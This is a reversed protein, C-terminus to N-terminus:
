LIYKKLLYIIAGAVLVIAGGVVMFYAAAVALLLFVVACAALGAGFLIKKWLPIKKLSFSRIHITYGEDDEKKEEKGEENLTLGQYDHVDDKSMVRPEEHVGTEEKTKDNDNM